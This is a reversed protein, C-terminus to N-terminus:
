TARCTAATGAGPTGLRKDFQPVPVACLDGVVRAARDLRDDGIQDLAAQVDQVGDLRVDGVHVAPLQLTSKPSRREKWPDIEM